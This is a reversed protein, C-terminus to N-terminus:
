RVAERDDKVFVAAERQDGHVDPVVYTRYIFRLSPGAESVEELV